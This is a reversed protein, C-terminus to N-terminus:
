IVNKALERQYQIAQEISLTNKLACRLDLSVANQGSTRWLNDIPIFIQDAIAVWTFCYLTEGIRTTLIQIDGDVHAGSYRKIGGLSYSDLLSLDCDIEERLRDMNPKLKYFGREQINFKFDETRKHTKTHELRAISGGIGENYILDWSKILISNYQNWNKLVSEMYDSMSPTSIHETPKKLEEIEKIWEADRSNTVERFNYAEVHYGSGNWHDKM